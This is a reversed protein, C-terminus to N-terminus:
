DNKNNNITSANRLYYNRLVCLDKAMSIRGTTARVDHLHLLLPYSFLEPLTKLLDTILTNPIAALVPTCKSTKVEVLSKILYFVFYTQQTITGEQIGGEVILLLQRLSSLLKDQPKTEEINESTRAMKPLPETDAAQSLSNLYLNM